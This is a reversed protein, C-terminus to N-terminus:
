NAAQRSLPHSESTTPLLKPILPRSLRLNVRDIFCLQRALRCPSFDPALSSHDSSEVRQRDLLIDAKLLPISRSSDCALPHAKPTSNLVGTQTSGSVDLSCLYPSPM